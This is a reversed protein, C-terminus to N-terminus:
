RGSDKARVRELVEKAVVRRLEKLEKKEDGSLCFEWDEWGCKPCEIHLLTIPNPSVLESFFGSWGCTCRVRRDLRKNLTGLPQM